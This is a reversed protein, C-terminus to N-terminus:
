GLGGKREVTRRDLFYKPRVLRADRCKHPLARYTLLSALDKRGSCKHPLARYALLSTRSTCGRNQPISITPSWWGRKVRGDLRCLSTPLALRCVVWCWGRLPHVYLYLWRLQRHITLGPRGLAALFGRSILLTVILRNVRRHILVGKKSFRLVDNHGACSRSPTAGDWPEM